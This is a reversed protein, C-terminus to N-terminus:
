LSNKAQLTHSKDGILYALIGNLENIKGMRKMPVRKSYNKIFTKNQKDEIGGPIITNVRIKKSCLKNCAM